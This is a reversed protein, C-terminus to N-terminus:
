CGPRTCAVTPACRDDWGLGLPVVHLNLPIALRRKAQRASCVTTMSGNPSMDAHGRAAPHLEVVRRDLADLGIQQEHGVLVHVVVADLRDAAVGRDQARGGARQLRRDALDDRDGGLVVLRRAGLAPRVRDEHELEVPQPHAVEAVEALRASRSSCAAAIPSISRSNMGTPPPGVIPASCAAAIM